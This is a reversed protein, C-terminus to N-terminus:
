RAAPHRVDADGQRARRLGVGAPEHRRVPACPPLTRARPQPVTGAPLDAGSPLDPGATRAGPGSAVLWLRRVDRGFSWCLLALSVAVLGAAPLPAIVGAGAVVLVIGQVAAVVKAATNPPLTGRLWPLARGALVFAYRMLGIALAWPGVIGAVHVSLVLILFADVEMDFRAGLASVSGTRRAVRGDVADLVLAVTALAVLAPVAVASDLPGDLRGDLLGDVVLATVGGVLLARSLTVLDAPSFARRGARHMAGTLLALLGATYALGALVGAPGLGAGAALWALLLLAAGAAVTQAPGRTVLTTM